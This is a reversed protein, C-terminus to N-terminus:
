RNEEEPDAASVVPPRLTKPIRSPRAIGSAEEARPDYFVHDYITAPNPFPEGKVTRSLDQMESFAQDRLAASEDKSRLGREELLAEVQDLCDREEEIYNAGSSSSHGYLRSVRAELLFPKREERVYNMAYALEAHSEEVENGDIIRHHIRFAKARDAINLEGHQSAAPTSIGYGNNTVIMLLPLEQQPRSAWVLASAFDGEATGADGGQVVTIGTCDPSRSQALATGISIPFQVEIPSTVPCVNWERISFHGVFNRGGSFPDTVRMQMQRIVDIPEAGMALLTASSRYHLHTYDHNLGEGKNLLLGLPVNFAEEGPGGIWFFGDGQKQIRILREELARARVMLGHIRLLREASLEERRDDLEETLKLVYEDYVTLAGIRRVLIATRGEGVHQPGILRSRPHSVRQVM